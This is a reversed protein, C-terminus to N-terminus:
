KSTDNTHSLECITNKSCAVTLATINYQSLILTSYM